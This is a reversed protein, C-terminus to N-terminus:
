STASSSDSEYNTNVAISYKELVIVTYEYLCHETNKCMAFLLDEHDTSGSLTMLEKLTDYVRQTIESISGTSFKVSPRNDGSWQQEDLMYNWQQKLIALDMTENVTHIMLWLNDCADMYQNMIIYM